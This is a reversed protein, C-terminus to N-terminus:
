KNKKRSQSFREDGFAKRNLKYEIERGSEGACCLDVGFGVVTVSANKLRFLYSFPTKARDSHFAWAGAKWKM